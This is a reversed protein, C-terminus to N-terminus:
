SFLATLAGYYLSDPNGLRVIVSVLRVISVTCASLILILCVM